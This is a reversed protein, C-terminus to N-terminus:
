AGAKMTANYRRTLRARKRAAAKKPITGRAAEKALKKTVQQLASQAKEPDKDHMASDFKKLVTKLESVRTRNRMRRTANQRIRKKASITHAM